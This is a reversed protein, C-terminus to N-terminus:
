SSGSPFPQSPHTQSSHSSLQPTLKGLTASFPTKMPESAMMGHIDIMMERQKESIKYAQYYHSADFEGDKAWHDQHFKLEDSKWADYLDDKMDQSTYFCFHENYGNSHAKGTGEQDHEKQFLYM